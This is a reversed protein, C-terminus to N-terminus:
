PSNNYPPTKTTSSSTVRQKFLIYIIISLIIKNKFILSLTAILDHVQVNYFWAFGRAIFYIIGFYNYRWISLQNRMSNQILFGFGVM